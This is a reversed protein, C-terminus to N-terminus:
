QLKKIRAFVRDTISEVLDDNSEELKEETVEETSEEVKEEAIEETAEELEEAEEEPAEEEAPEEEAPEEMDMDVEVEEEEEPDADLEPMMDKLMDAVAMIAKAQEPTITIEAEPEEEMDMEMDMEEEEADDHVAEEYASHDMGMEELSDVEELAEAAATEEVEDSYAEEIFSESLPQMGALKMFKRITNEELLKKSM